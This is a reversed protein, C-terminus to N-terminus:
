RFEFSFAVAPTAPEHLRLAIQASQGPALGDQAATKGLYEGATFARAGVTRGDADSLALYLVPWAQSWRADNRFTAQVLLIGPADPAPRVDRSLMAFAQPERWPPLDCGFMGCVGSLLPRWGADLALRARDALLIQLGLLLSLALLALWQWRPTRPATPPSSALFSPAATEALSEAVGESAQAELEPLPEADPQAASEAQDADIAQLAPELDAAPNEIDRLDAFATEEAAENTPEIGTQEDAVTPEIGADSAADEAPPADTAAHDAMEADVAGATSEGAPMAEAAPDPADPPEIEAGCDPCHGLAPNARLAADLAHWCHPCIRPM